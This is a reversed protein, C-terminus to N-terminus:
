CVEWGLPAHKLRRKILHLPCRAVIQFSATSRRAAPSIGFRMGTERTRCGALGYSTPCTERNRQLRATVM